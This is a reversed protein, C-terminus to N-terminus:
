ECGIGSVLISTGKVQYTANLSRTIIDLKTFLPMETLDGNLTCKGLSERELVMEIGYAKELATLVDNLPADQFNFSLTEKNITALVEPKEVLGTVFHEEEDFFTVKLNPTLIVGNNQKDEADKEFVTVKGSVVSVESKKMSPYAKVTFSTGLVKTTMKGTYILFPRTTDHMVDFFAEGTLNVERFKADSQNYSLQTKPKMVVVSGDPLTIKLEKASVNEYKAWGSFPTGSLSQINKASKNYTWIGFALLFMAAASSLYWVWNIQRTPTKQTPAIKEKIKLYLENELNIQEDDTMQSIGDLNNEFSYYWAEILELEQQTSQNNLFREIIEKNLIMKM